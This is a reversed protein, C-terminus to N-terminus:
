AKPWSLDFREELRWDLDSKLEWPVTVFDRLVTRSALLGLRIELRGLRGV